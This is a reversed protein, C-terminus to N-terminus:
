QNGRFPVKREGNGPSSQTRAAQVAAAGTQSTGALFNDIQSQKRLKQFREAMAIRMKKERIDRFLEDKVADFDTVRPTTRGQCFMIVWHEGVQVVKGDSFFDHIVEFFSQCAEPPDCPSRQLLCPIRMDAM